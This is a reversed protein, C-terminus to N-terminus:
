ENVPGTKEIESIAIRAVTRAFTCFASPPLNSDAIRKFEQLLMMEQNVTAAREMELTTSLIAITGEHMKCKEQAIWLHYRMEELVSQTYRRLIQRQLSAAGDILSEIQEPPTDNPYNPKCTPEMPDNM